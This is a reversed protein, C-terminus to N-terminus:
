GCRALLVSVASPRKSEPVAVVAAPHPERAALVLERGQSAVPVALLAPRVAQPGARAGQGSGAQNAGITGPNEFQGTGGSGGAAWATGTAGIGGNAVVLTGGFSSQGGNATAGSGGAGVVVTYATCETVTLATTRVYEGGGGGGGGNVPGGRGGGGWARVLLTTQNPGTTYTFTGVTTFKTPTSPTVGAPCTSSAAAPSSLSDIIVPATWAVAGAAAASRIMTRRSLGRSDASETIDPDSPTPPM